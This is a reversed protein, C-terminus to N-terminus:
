ILLNFNLNNKHRFGSLGVGNIEYCGDRKLIEVDTHLDSM